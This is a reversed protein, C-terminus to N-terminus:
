IHILSLKLGATYFIDKLGVPVGHLPSRPGSQELEIMSDNAAALAGEKDITVWAMLMPELEDIRRLLDEVLSTPSLSGNRIAAAAAAASLQPPKSGTTM